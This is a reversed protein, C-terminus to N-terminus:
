YSMSLSVNISHKLIYVKLIVTSGSYKDNSNIVELVELNSSKSKFM